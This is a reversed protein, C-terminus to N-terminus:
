IKPLAPAAPTARAPVASERPATAFFEVLHSVGTYGQAKLQSEVKNVV